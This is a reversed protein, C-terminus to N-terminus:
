REAWFVLGAQIYCNVPQGSGTGQGTMTGEANVDRGTLNIAVSSHGMCEVESM